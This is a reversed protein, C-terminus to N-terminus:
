AVNLLGKTVIMAPLYALLYVGLWGMDWPQGNSKEFPAWFYNKTLARPYVATLSTVPGDEPAVEMPAPPSKTGFTLKLEIPPRTGTKLRVLHQGGAEEPVVLRWSIKQKPLPQALFRDLSAMMAKHAGDAAAQLEWPYEGVESQVSWEARITELTERIPPLSRSKKSTSDIELPRRVDLTMPELWDGDVEAVVNVVMGPEVNWSAPDLRAPLWLFILMMPGLVFALATMAAKLLRATVPGALSDMNARQSSDKPCDRSLRRLNAAREKAVLLRRNDTFKKQLILPLVAFFIAIVAVTGPMGILNVLPWLIADLLGFLPDKLWAAPMLWVALLFAAWGMAALAGKRGASRELLGPNPPRLRYEVGEIAEPESDEEGMVVRGRNADLTLEDGDEFIRTANELVVAPLGLERAVIAGHSLAGGCELILGSAGVFLPTWSPDTSPCVLIYDEGLDGATEPTFVKKVTGKVVGTSLPYTEFHDGTDKVPPEGLQELDGRDIVRSIALDKEAKSRLKRVEIRDKPVFDTKLAEKMEKDELWFIDEGIGLRNGMELAVRRLESYARMLQCKGDERFRAYRSARHLLVLFEAQEKEGLDKVFEEKAERAEALRRHHIEGLSDQGALRGAMEELDGPREFWRPTALDFEGPGRFGFRSVWEDLGLKSKGVKQMALNASFTQDPTESVVLKHFLAGPEETWSRDELFAQLESSALAEVMSPLFAMVGFDDFVKSVAGDWHDCLRQRDMKSLDVKLQADCWEKVAPVYEEDFQRELDDALGRIRDTVEHAKVAAAGREKMGGVPVTPPQQAADPNRRLLDVDYAFPYGDGFMSPMRSCDMYVRGGILELFGIDRVSESPEFGVRRYMEGFGGGGSMFRRLLSWTLPTPHSVTEDLNHRVWPGHGETLKKGLDERMSQTIGHKMQLEALTTIARSQLLYAKGEVVAWELDQEEEFCEAALCGLRWLDQTEEFSLCARTRKEGELVEFGSGGPMLRASKESVEYKLVAGDSRQLRIRDPQVKGSVVGEGLGWAAEILMEERSGTRPDATFLVGASEAPVLKQVVVAMAVSGPDIGQEKLYAQLRESKMSEWCDCIAELLEDISGLNLFTEYQGAMSADALDEATASSRAAVLPSELQEYARRIEEEVKAPIGGGEEATQYAETTVVFGDPVPLGASLMQSLNISKGGALALDRAECLPLVFRSQSM